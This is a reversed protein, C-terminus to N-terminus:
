PGPHVRAIGDPSGPCGPNAYRGVRADSKQMDASLDQAEELCRELANM